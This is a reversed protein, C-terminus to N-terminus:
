YVVVVATVTVSDDLDICRGWIGGSFTDIEDTDFARVPYGIEVETPAVTDIYIEMKAGSANGIAASTAGAAVPVLETWTNGVPVNTTTSM